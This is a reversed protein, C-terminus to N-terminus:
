EFSLFSADSVVVSEGKNVVFQFSSVTTSSLFMESETAKLTNAWKRQDRNNNSCALVIYPLALCPSAPLALCSLVLCSLVLCPLAFCCFVFRSLALYSSLLYFIFSLALRSLALRFLFPCLRNSTRCFPWSRPLFRSSWPCRLHYLQAFRVM